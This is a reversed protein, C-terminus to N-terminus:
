RSIDIIWDLADQIDYYWESQPQNNQDIWRYKTKEGIDWANTTNDWRASVPDKSQELIM